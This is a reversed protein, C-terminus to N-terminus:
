ATGITEVKLGNSSPFTICIGVIGVLNGDYAGVASCGIVEVIAGVPTLNGEPIRNTVGVDSNSDARGNLDIFDAGRGAVRGVRIGNGVRELLMGVM